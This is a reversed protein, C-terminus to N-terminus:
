WDFLCLMDTICFIHRVIYISCVNFIGFFYCRFRSATKVDTRLIAVPTQVPVHKLAHNVLRQILVFRPATSGFTVQSVNQILSIYISIYLVPCM